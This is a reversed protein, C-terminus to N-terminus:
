TKGATTMPHKAKKAADWGLKRAKQQSTTEGVFMARSDKNVLYAVWKAYGVHRIMVPQSWYCNSHPRGNLPGGVFQRRALIGRLDMAGVLLGPCKKVVLDAVETPKPMSAPCVIKLTGDWDLGFKFSLLELFEVVTMRDNTM